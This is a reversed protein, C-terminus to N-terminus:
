EPDEFYSAKPPPTTKSIAKEIICAGGSLAMWLIGKQLYNIDFLLAFPIALWVSCCYFCSLLSGFFGVGAYKRLRQSLNFPGNEQSLLHSLRWIALCNIAFNLFNLELM